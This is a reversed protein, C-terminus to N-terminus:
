LKFSALDDDEESTAAPNVAIEEEVSMPSAPKSLIGDLGLIDNWTKGPNQEILNLLGVFSRIVDRPTRFFDAGLTDNAKHLLAAIGEDPVLRAAQDGSAHVVSINRLLVFLDEPSLAQLRVVPGSLDVLGGTALQNEALRSRLAEYSFLGRRRDELSEDTGAFVFGVGQASGQVADNLITLIAEFNAVRSRSSPLRHSLVVLEDFLVLMGDFGAKRCFGAMLKLSDYFTDDDIIRRVGLDQRAETKTQYEGRLWRLAAAKEAENGNVTGRYYARLVQAFEFGGVYEQLDRLDETIRAEVDATDGGSGVIEQQLGSIWKTCVSALAGGEPKARTAMNRMLESYLSRAEGGTAQLRREMTFDAQVIVLNQQLAVHRVLNLFFSKGSGFRGVVLRFSSGGDRIRSIDQLLAETESKRGVQILHLGQRPVLGAQLSQLVSDRERRKIQM